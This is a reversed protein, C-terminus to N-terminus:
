NYNGLDYAIIVTPVGPDSLMFVTLKMRITEKDDDDIKIVRANYFEGTNAAYQGWPLTSSTSVLQVKNITATTGINFGLVLEEEGISISKNSNNEVVLKFTAEYCYGFGLAEASTNKVFVSEQTFELDPKTITETDINAIQEELKEVLATLETIKTQLATNATTLSEIAATKDLTTRLNDISNRLETTTAYNGLNGTANAVKQDISALASSVVDNIKKTQDGSSSKLVAVDNSQTADVARIAVLDAELRTIDAMYAKKGITPMIFANMAFVVVLSIIATIILSNTSGISFKSTPMREDGVFPPEEEKNPPAPVYEEKNIQEKKLKFRRNNGKTFLTM